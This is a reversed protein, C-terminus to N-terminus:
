WTGVHRLVNAFSALISITFHLVWSNMCVGYNNFDIELLPKKSKFSDTTTVINFACICAFYNHVFISDGVYFITCKIITITIILLLEFCNLLITNNLSKKRKDLLGNKDLFFCCCFFFLEANYTVYSIVTTFFILKALRGRLLKHLRTPKDYLYFETM